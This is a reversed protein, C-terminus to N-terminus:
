RQVQKLIKSLLVKPGKYRLVRFAYDVKIMFKAFPTSPFMRKSLEEYKMDRLVMPPHKLPFDIEYSKMFFLRWIKPSFMRVDSGGHTSDDTMGVNTVLNYCPSISLRSELMMTQGMITEWTTHKGTQKDLTNKQILKKSEHKYYVPFVSKELMRLNDLLYKDKLIPYTSHKKADEWVRKWTAWGYGANIMSFYYSYPCEEYKEVRQFGSITQIREDDNYKELLEDCFRFFSASAVCDDELIVLRDVIGFAWDFSRYENPDCGLNIESYNRYVDCEWDIQEAIERCEMVGPMDKENRPGDQALLLIKPKVERIREFVKRFTSPRNFFILLIPTEATYINDNM